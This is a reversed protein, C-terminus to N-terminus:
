FRRDLGQNVRQNFQPDNPSAGGVGIRDNISLASAGSVTKHLPGVDVNVSGAMAKSFSGFLNSLFGGAALSGQIFAIILLILIGGGIIVIAQLFLFFNAQSQM